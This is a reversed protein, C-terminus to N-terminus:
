RVFMFENSSLLVQAYRDWSSLNSGDSAASVFSLGLELETPEPDRAYLLQYAHKIRQDNADSLSHLRAVLAKARDIMFPSNMFFLYQQPVISSPRQEVTSRMLPFDFLRLFVDSGFADGNRGVKAYLTRRKTETINHHSPGGLSADLEGTVSLLSDRWAEVDMRRPSMRWLLRNDGDAKYSQENYDSSLQYTASCMIQRHLSKLSWGRAVFESALWDLLEPHTPSEGLTGFNGPTRVLGAGFHHQWIRNVFVRVTLPNQPDVISAALEERGSGKTYRTPEAGSLIRLFRRPAVDGTKLLNGRLAVKMDEHGTEHLAHATELAPPANKQLEALKAKWQDLQAQEEPTAEEKSAEEAAPNKENRSRKPFTKIKKNLEEVVHQHDRFKQVVDATALPMEHTATNNFIGALSYYDQQPIPDFKHDHCRACSGTIGLLGRTLIDVRDDLTEARSQAISDPDGGDSQYTPGLAFFGTAVAQSPDGSLDGAVQQRIFENIPLDRNLADVVWDRYRWADDLAKDGELFGGRGDSFRAVDLWHRAWRQGYMPSNLLEDVLSEVAKQRDVAAATTFSHAQQPTPPVGILDIFIRRALIHTAAPAVVQIETTTRRAMLFSDIPNVVANSSQLAKQEPRDGSRALGDSRLDGEREGATLADTSIQAASLVPVEPRRVPQWAWHSQQAEAWDFKSWDRRSEAAPVGPTSTAQPWPAGMEVWKALAEIQRQELKRDPPMEIGNYKIASILLSEEPKGVVVAAGSEGGKIMAERSDVYLGAQLEAADTSHCDYCHQVLVPRIEAEFFEIQEDTFTPKDTVAATEDVAWAIKGIAIAVVCGGIVICLKPIM